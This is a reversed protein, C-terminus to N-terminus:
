GQKMYQPKPSQMIFASQRTLKWVFQIENIKLCVPDTFYFHNYHMIYKNM